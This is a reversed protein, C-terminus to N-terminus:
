WGRWLAQTRATSKALKRAPRCSKVLGAVRKLTACTNGLRQAACGLTRRDGSILHVGVDRGKTDIKIDVGLKNVAM